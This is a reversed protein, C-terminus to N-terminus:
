TADEQELKDIPKESKAELISDMFPLFGWLVGPHVGGGQPNEIAQKLMGWHENEVGVWDGPKADRFQEEVIRCAKLVKYGAGMAPDPLVIVDLYRGFSWPPSVSGDKETTPNGHLMVQIDDKVHVYKM